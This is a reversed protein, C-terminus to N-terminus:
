QSKADDVVKFDLLNDQDNDKSNAVALMVNNLGVMSQHFKRVETAVKDASAGAQRSQQSSEIQLIPMFAISCGWEDIRSGNQPHTGELKIYWECTHCVKSVDRRWLPCYTGPDRQPKRTNSM